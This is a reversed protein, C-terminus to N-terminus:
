RMGPIEIKYYPRNIYDDVYLNLDCFYLYGEHLIFPHGRNGILRYHVGDIFFHHYNSNVSGYWNKGVGGRGYTFEVNPDTSFYLDMQSNAISDINSSIFHRVEEKLDGFAIKEAKSLDLDYVMERGCSYALFLIITVIINKIM